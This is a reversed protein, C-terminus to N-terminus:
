YIVHFHKYGITLSSSIWYLFNKIYYKMMHSYSMNKYMCSRELTESNYITSIHLVTPSTQRETEMPQTALSPIIITLAESSQQFM